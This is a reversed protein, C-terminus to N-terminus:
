AASLNLPSETSDLTKPSGSGDMSPCFKAMPMAWLLLQRSHDGRVRHKLVLRDKFKGEEMVHSFCSLLYPSCFSCEKRCQRCSPKLNSSFYGLIINFVSNMSLMRMHFRCIKVSHLIGAPHPSHPIM